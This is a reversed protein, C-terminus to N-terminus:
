SRSVIDKIKKQNEESFKVDRYWRLFFKSPKKDPSAMLQRMETSFKLREAEVMYAPFKTLENVKSFSITTSDKFPIRLPKKREGYLYPVVKKSRGSLLSFGFIIMKDYKDSKPDKARKICRAMWCYSDLYQGSSNPKGVDKTDFEFEPFYTLFDETLLFVFGLDRLYKIVQDQDTIREVQALIDERPSEINLSQNTSPRGRSSIEKIPLKGKIKDLYDKILDIDQQHTLTVEIKIPGDHTKKPGQNLEISQDVLRDEIVRSENDLLQIRIKPKYTYNDKEM